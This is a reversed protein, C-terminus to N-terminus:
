KAQMKLEGFHRIFRVVHRVDHTYCTTSTHSSTRKEFLVLEGLMEHSRQHEVFWALSDERVTHKQYFRKFRMEEPQLTDLVHLGSPLEWFVYYGKPNKPM